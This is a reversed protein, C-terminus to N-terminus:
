RVRAAGADDTRSEFAARPVAETRQALEVLQADTLDDQATLADRVEQASVGTRAAATDAVEDVSAQPGLGLREALRRHLDARLAQAAQSRAGAQQLLNGVAVVLESSSLEVQFPERVPRGLRRARWLVVVAFAIALQLLAARVRNPVLDALTRDGGGPDAFDPTVFAVRTGSSPALLAAAIVGNDAAALNGNTLFAPGGLAVLTGNGEEQVVLWSDGARDYCGTAGEPVAYTVSRPALVTEADALAPLDCERPLPAEVFGYGAPGAPEPTLPSGPDAVVLTGGGRVFQQLRDRADEDLNDVLLLTVDADGIEAGDELAVDAGLADLVTVLAKTGDPDTSRPDLPLGDGRGASSVVALVVVAALLAVLPGWYRARGAWGPGGAGGAGSM